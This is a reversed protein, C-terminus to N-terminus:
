KKRGPEKAPEPQYLHDSSSKCGDKQKCLVFTVDVTQPEEGESQEIAFAEGGPLQVMGTFRAVYTADFPDGPRLKWAARIRAEDDKSLGAVELEGMRFLPGESITVNYAVTGADDNFAPAPHATMQAYGRRAYDKRLNEIEYQLLDANMPLGPFSHVLRELEPKKYQTAGTFTIPAALKYERGETVPITVLVDTEGNDKNALVRHNPVGVEARLFGKSAYVKRLNETAFRQIVTRAFPQGTLPQLAEAVPGAFPPSVGEAEVKGVTVSRDDALYHMADPTTSGPKLYPAASIHAPVGREELIQKVAAAVEDSLAGSLPVHTTFLPVRQHLEAALEEGSLWVINQFDAPVFDADDRDVLKFEVRMGGAAQTHTYSVEKFVGSNVIKQAANRIETLPVEKTKSVTLGTYALIDKEPYFESGTAKLEVIPYQQGAAELAFGFLILCLYWHARM